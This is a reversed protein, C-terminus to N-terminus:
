AGVTAGIAHGPRVTQCEALNISVHQTLGSEWRLTELTYAVAFPVAIRTSDNRVSGLNPLNSVGLKTSNSCKPNDCPPLYLSDM